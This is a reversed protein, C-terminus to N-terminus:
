DLRHGQVPLEILDSTAMSEELNHRSGSVLEFYAYIKELQHCCGL